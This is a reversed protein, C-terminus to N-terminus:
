DNGNGLAVRFVSRWDVPKGVCLRRTRRPIFPRYLVSRTVLEAAIVSLVVLAPVADDHEMAGCVAVVDPYTYLGTAGVKVRMDSSFVRCPRAVFQNGLERVMNATITNHEVSAGAMAFIKRARTM